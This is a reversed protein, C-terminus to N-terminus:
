PGTANLFVVSGGDKKGEGEVRRLDSVGKGFM